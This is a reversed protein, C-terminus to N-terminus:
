VAQMAQMISFQPVVQLVDATGTSSSSTGKYLKWICPGAIQDPTVFIPDAQKLRFRNTVQTEEYFSVCTLLQGKFNCHFFVEAVGAPDVIAVVDRAHISSCRTFSASLSTQLGEAEHAAIGFHQSFSAKLDQSAARPKLLGVQRVLDVTALADLHTLTMEELLSRETGMRANSQANAFRKLEKHRREHVFCPVLMSQQSLQMPLHLSYHGKPIQTKTYVENFMHLHGRIAKELDRPNVAGPVIAEQLLDLCHCLLMFCQVAKAAVKRFQGQDLRDKLINRLVPYSGLAEGASSKWDADSGKKKEFIKSYNAKSSLWCPWTYLQFEQHISEQKLGSTELHKLLLNVEQHFLGGVLYNHMWDFSTSRVPDLHQRVDPSLLAGAPAHNFGCNKELAAMEGKTLRASERALHDVTEFLTEKTHLM